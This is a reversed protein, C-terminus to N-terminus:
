VTVCASTSLPLTLSEAVADPVGGDPGATVEAGDAADTGAGAAGPIVTTFDVVAADTVCAPWLTGYENATVLVPLTVSVPTVTSSVWSGGALWAPRDAM